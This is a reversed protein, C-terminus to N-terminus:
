PRSKYQAACGDTFERLKSIKMKLQEESYTKLLEQVNHVSHYDQIDHDLIIFLHDKLVNPDAETGKM